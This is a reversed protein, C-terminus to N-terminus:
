VVLSRNAGKALRALAERESVEGRALEGFWGGRGGGRRGRGGWSQFFRLFRWKVKLLQNMSINRVEILRAGFILFNLWLTLTTRHLLPDIHVNKTM